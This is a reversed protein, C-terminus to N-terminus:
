QNAKILHYDLADDFRNYFAGALFFFLSSVPAEGADFADPRLRWVRHALYRDLTDNVGRNQYRRARQVYNILQRSVGDM